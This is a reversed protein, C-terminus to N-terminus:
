NIETPNIQGIQMLTDSLNRKKKAKEWFPKVEDFLPRMANDKPVHTGSSCLSFFPLIKKKKKLNTIKKHKVYAEFADVVAEWIAIEREPTADKRFGLEWEEYTECWTVAQIREWLAKCRAEAEPKLKMHRIPTPALNDLLEGIPVTKTNTKKM